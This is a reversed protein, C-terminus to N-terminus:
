FLIITFFNRIEETFFYFKRCILKKDCFQKKFYIKERLKFYFFFIKNKYNEEQNFIFFRKKKKLQLLKILILMGIDKNCTGLMIKEDIRFIHRGKFGNAWGRSTLDRLTSM